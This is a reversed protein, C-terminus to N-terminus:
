QNFALYHLVAARLTRLVESLYSATTRSAVIAPDSPNGAGSTRTIGFDKAIRALDLRASTCYIQTTVVAVRSGPRVGFDQLAQQIVEPNGGREDSHVAISIKNRYKEEVTNIAAYCLDAETEAGPAFGSVSEKEAVNLRRASCAFVIKKTRINNWRMQDIVFELRDHNSKRAGGLVLISDYRGSLLTQYDLLGLAGALSMIVRKTGEPWEDQNSELQFRVLERGDKYRPDIEKLGKIFGDPDDFPDINVGFRKMFVLVEPKELIAKGTLLKKVEVLIQDKSWKPLINCYAQM